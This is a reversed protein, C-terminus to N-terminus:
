SKKRLASVASDLAEVPQGLVERVYAALFAVARILAEGDAGEVGGGDVLRLLEVTQPRVRWAEEGAEAVASFGGLRPVFVRVSQTELAQESERRVDRSLEPRYGCEVLTVWLYRLLAAAPVTAGESTLRRGGDVLADFMAEHPDHDRIMHHTLDLMAMAVHFRALDKRVGLFIESLDWATLTALGDHNKILMGAQGRTFLEYGGSFRVDQRKAGKALGRVVGHSRCFLSVTQSTESWDWVRICIADDMVTAM